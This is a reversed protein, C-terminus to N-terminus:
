PRFTYAKLETIWTGNTVSADTVTGAAAYSNTINRVTFAQAGPWKWTPVNTALESLPSLAYASVIISWDDRTTAPANTGDWLPCFNIGVVGNSGQGNALRIRLTMPSFQYYNTNVGGAADVTYSNFIPRGERDVNLYVPQFLKTFAINNSAGSSRVVNGANNTWLTNTGLAMFNNTVVAALNTVAWITLGASNTGTAIARVTLLNQPYWIQASVNLTLALLSLILLKKM